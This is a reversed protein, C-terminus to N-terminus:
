SELIWANLRRQFEVMTSPRQDLDRSLAELLFGRLKDGNRYPIKPVQPEVDVLAGLGRDDKDIDVGARGEFPNIGTFAYCALVALSFIDTRQDLRYYHGQLQEYSMYSQTGPVQMHMDGVADSVHMWRASGFDTLIPQDGQMLINTPKLDCHIIGRFHLEGVIGAIQNVQIVRKVLEKEDSPRRRWRVAIDEGEIYEMIMYLHRPEGAKRGFFGFDYMKVVHPANQSSLFLNYGMETLFLRINSNNVEPRTTRYITPRLVRLVAKRRGKGPIDVDPVLFVDCFGGSGLWKEIVFNPDYARFDKELTRVYVEFEEGREPCRFNSTHVTSSEERGGAEVKAEPAPPPVVVESDEEMGLFSRFPKMLKDM